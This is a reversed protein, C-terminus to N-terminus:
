FWTSKHMFFFLKLSKQRSRSRSGCVIKISWYCHECYESMLVGPAISHPTSCNKCKLYSNSTIFQICVSLKFYLAHGQFAKDFQSEVNQFMTRCTTDEKELIWQKLVLSILMFTIMFYSTSFTFLFEIIFYSKFVVYHLCLNTSLM